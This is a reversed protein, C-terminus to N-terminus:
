GVVVGALKREVELRLRDFVELAPAGAEMVGVPLGRASARIFLDDRPVVTRMVLEAPLINRLSQVTDRSEPLKAQMMTLVVGLITLHPNVIRMRTLAELMKPVSRIGLPEAQQPVMVANVASLIDATAGFLGAATDILCVEFGQAAVERLFGRVRHLSVGSSGGGLEYASAQGAPVLSLTELRTPVILRDASVTPNEILDYFGELLRSQRTLSLGVSGQPDADVLLTRRGSRAFSHALNIAVTTKGVGGKQSSIAITIM